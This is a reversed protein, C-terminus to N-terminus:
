HMRVLRTCSFRSVSCRCTATGSGDEYPKGIVESREGAVASALFATVNLKQWVALEELVAIGIKTEFRM